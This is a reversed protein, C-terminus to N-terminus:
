KGDKECLLMETSAIFSVRNATASVDKINSDELLLSEMNDICKLIETIEDCILRISSEEEREKHKPEPAEVDKDCIPIATPGYELDQM